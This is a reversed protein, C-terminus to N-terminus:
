LPTQVVSAGTFLLFQSLLLLLLLLLLLKRLRLNPHWKQLTIRTKGPNAMIQDAARAVNAERLGTRWDHFFFFSYLYVDTM